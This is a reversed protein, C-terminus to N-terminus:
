RAAAPAVQLPDGERLLSNPNVVVQATAALQASMVEIATGRVRGTAVELIAAKGDRVITLTGKGARVQVCNTPVLFTGAVPALAFVASGTLGAPLLLEANALRLELRMTGAAADFVRSQRASTAAFTQGPFERFRVNAQPQAGIRLALDPAAGIVFRLEDLRVLQYLWGDATSADGRVRDGRDFNRAAIVGAFPAVVTAFKQQEVLRELEATSARLAAAAATAEMARREGEERSLARALVLAPAREAVEKANAHRVEAQERAARAADVARDVDPADIVALVDGAAVRDGIDFRRERVIGNARTFIRASELPETRGPVEYSETATAPVPTAVRVVAPGTQAVAVTGCGLLFLVPACRANM